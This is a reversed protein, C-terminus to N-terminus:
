CGRGTQRPLWLALLAASRGPSSVPKAELAQRRLLEPAMEAHSMVRVAGKLHTSLVFACVLSTDGACECFPSGKIGFRPIENRGAPLAM